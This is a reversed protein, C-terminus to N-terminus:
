RLYKEIVSKNEKFYAYDSTYNYYLNKKVEREVFEFEAPTGIIHSGKNAAEIQKYLDIWHPATPQGDGYVWQIAALKENALLLPLHKVENYGDLHYITHDLKNIFLELQPLTFEAFMDTSINFSFDSQIVYSPTKSYLGNWDSYGPNQISGDTPHLIKHFDDFAEFWAIDAEKLTRVVEEPEDYLDYLLNETGRMVAVSDFNGGLDPTSMLVSGQWREMGARYLDKVRKAWVNEPDYKFHIDCLEREKDPFFWVHGSSNDLKAGCLATVLGPGFFDFNIYPFSDGLFECCSLQYDWADIIAEAPISLDHVNAQTIIDTKPKPRNPVHADTIVYKYNPRPLSREWFSQSTQQVKEWRAKDFQISM